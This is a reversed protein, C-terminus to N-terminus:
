ISSDGGIATDSWHDLFIDGGGKKKGKKAKYIKNWEENGKEIKPSNKLPATQGWTERSIRIGPNRHIKDRKKKEYGEGGGICGGRKGCFHSAKKKEEALRVPLNYVVGAAVEEREKGPIVIYLGPHLGKRQTATTTLGANRKLLSQASEPSSPTRKGKGGAKGAPRARISDEKEEALISRSKSFCAATYVFLIKRDGKGREEEGEAIGKSTKGKGRQISASRELRRIGASHSGDGRKEGGDRRYGTIL